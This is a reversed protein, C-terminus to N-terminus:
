KNDYDVECLLTRLETANRIIVDALYIKYADRQFLNLLKDRLELEQEHRIAAQHTKFLSGDETIYRDEKAIM